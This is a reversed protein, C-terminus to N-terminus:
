KQVVELSGQRIGMREGDATIIGLVNCGIFSIIVFNLCYLYQLTHEVKNQDAYLVGSQTLDTDSGGFFLSCGLKEKLFDEKDLATTSDWKNSLLGMRSVDTVEPKAMNDQSQSKKVAVSSSRAVPIKSPNSTASSSEPLVCFSSTTSSSSSSSNSVSSHKRFLSGFSRSGNKDNNKVKRQSNSPTQAWENIDNVVTLNDCTDQKSNHSPNSMRKGSYPQKFSDTRSRPTKNHNSGRQKPPLPPPPAVPWRDLSVSKLFSSKLNSSRPEQCSKSGIVAKKNESISSHLPTSAFSSKGHLVPRQNSNNLNDLPISDNYSRSRPHNAEVVSINNHLPTFESHNTGLVQCTEIGNSHSPTFDCGSTKVSSSHLPTFDSQSYSHLNTFNDCNHSPTFQSFDTNPVPPIDRDKVLNIFDGSSSRSLVTRKCHQTSRNHGNTIPTSIGSHVYGNVPTGNGHVSASSTAMTNNSNGPMKGVDRNNSTSKSRMSSKVSESVLSNNRSHTTTVASSSSYRRLSKKTSSNGAINSSKQWVKGIRLPRTPAPTNITEPQYFMIIDKRGVLLLAQTLSTNCCYRVYGTEPEHFGM